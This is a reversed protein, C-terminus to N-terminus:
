EWMDFYTVSYFCSLFFNCGDVLSLYSLRCTDFRCSNNLQSGLNVLARWKKELGNDALVEWDASLMHSPFVLIVRM